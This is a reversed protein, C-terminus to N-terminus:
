DDIHQLGLSDRPDSGQYWSIVFTMLERTLQSLKNEIRWNQYSSYPIFELDMCQPLCEESIVVVGLRTFRGDGFSRRLEVGLSVYRRYHSIVDFLMHIMVIFIRYEGGSWEDHWYTSSPWPIRSDESDQRTEQNDITIEMMGIDWRCWGWTWTSSWKIIDTNM